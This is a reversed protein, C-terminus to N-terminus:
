AGGSNDRVAGSISEDSSTPHQLDVRSSPENYEISLKRYKLWDRCFSDLLENRRLVLLKAAIRLIATRQESQETKPAGPVGHSNRYTSGAAQHLEYAEAFQHTYAEKPHLEFVSEMREILGSPGAVIHFHITGGLYCVEPSIAIGM